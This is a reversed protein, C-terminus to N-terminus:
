QELIWTILFYRKKGNNMQGFFTPLRGEHYLAQLRSSLAALLETQPKQATEEELARM